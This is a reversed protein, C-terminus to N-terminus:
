GQGRIKYLELGKPGTFNFLIKFTGDEHAQQLDPKFQLFSKTFNDEIMDKDCKEPDECEMSVRLTTEMEDGYLFAEYEGILYDMNDRQFVGREIDVRNFPNGAVWVTESERQPNMIRMHTRGCPCKERSVVVTTDETDYNLLLTGTKEGEPILTTLVIRGCEGEDVFDKLQPNYVDLHVLDEPM